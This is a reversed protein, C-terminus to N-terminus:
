KKILQKNSKKSLNIGNRKNFMKVIDQSALFNLYNEISSFDVNDIINSFDNMYIKVYEEQNLFTASVMINNEMKRTNLSESIKNKSKILGLYLSLYKKDEPTLLHSDLKIKCNKITKYISMGFYISTKIDKTEKKM